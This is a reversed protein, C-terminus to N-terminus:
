GGNSAAMAPSGDEDDDTTPVAVLSMIAPALFFDALLAMIITIGTLLGFNFLNNMTAFMFIFFGLSLVMTTVMMARGTTLLTNRVAENVDGTDHHYRRFNHMFHVTDDVALGIAISGILMTFMDLPFGAAKMFGMTIIIPGLNPIMSLLGIKLDGIFVIMMLTIVIFAILYSEGASTIAASLTRAMLPMMGTVKVKAIGDFTRDLKKQLAGIFKGYMYADLWPVKLTLRVKSFQSDVLDELDDSGSNEFLLLEQAILKRDHPITYHDDRNENLARNIEKVMDPLSIAKGVFLDGQRMKEMERELKDLKNLFGPDYLGNEKGTDLIIEAAMTGKLKEDLLVTARKIEMSEPLWKMPNHSFRLQSALGFSIIIIIASTIVILWPKGTSFDAIATLIRDMTAQRAKESSKIEVRVPIIAILPPLLMTTYILALIVGASAFIGLDAMPAVESTSFSLLGAATTLSTMVIALGSHGMAYTIAEQKDRTHSLRHYFVALVHVSDGVGVALLFSPLIQTPLKIPVGFFAMLGVTSLLSLVVVLLPLVVGSLRRFLIFLVLGITLIALVVFKRMDRKITQKLDHIFVPSGAVMVPFDASNYKAVIRRVANVTESNEADTLFPRDQNASPEIKTDEFGELAQEETGESSYASTKIVITTFLGDESIILNKYLPNTLVRQKLALLGEKTKPPNELLDEVILEDAEGRTNRVNVLSTIDDLNPVNNELEDHLTRLRAIFELNFVNAPKIALIIMEDRGFQNRFDNYGVLIPDKDHLFGETSTDMTVKPLNSMIAGIFILMFAITKLRNNYTFHTSREFWRGIKKRTTSM